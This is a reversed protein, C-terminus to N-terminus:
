KQCFFYASHNDDVTTNGDLDTVTVTTFGTEKLASTVEEPTYGTVPYDIEAYQWAPQWQNFQKLVGLRFRNLRKFSLLKYLLNKGFQKPNIKTKEPAQYLLVNFSGKRAEADYHPVIGWSYNPEIEGEVLNSNWWKTLQGHHNIDFFFIGNDSLCNYVQQFVLKLESLSMIHNLSASTSVVGDVPSDLSFYRADNLIFENQPANQRAYELMRESGDLGIARYNNKELLSVLQGTGCCLDLITSNESLKPLVLKNLTKFQNRAYTEGMTENYLWAWRDYKTYRSIM